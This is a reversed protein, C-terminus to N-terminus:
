DSCVFMEITGVATKWYEASRVSGFAERLADEYAGTKHPVTNTSGDLPQQICTFLARQLWDRPRGFDAVVFHGGKRLLQKAAGLARVKENPALHHFTMTSFVRDYVGLELPAAIDAEHFDISLGARQANKKALRLMRPDIDVGEVEVEPHARKLDIALRGPGSGLEIVRMGPELALSEIVSARMRAAPGWTRVLPDYLSTLWGYGLAPVYSEKSQETQAESAQQREAPSTTM